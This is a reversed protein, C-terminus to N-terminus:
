YNEKEHLKKFIKSVVRNKFSFLTILMKELSKICVIPYYFYRLCNLQFNEISHHSVLVSFNPLFLLQISRTKHVRLLDGEMLCTKSFNFNNRISGSM